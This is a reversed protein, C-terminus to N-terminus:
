AANANAEADNGRCAKLTGDEEVETEAEAIAVSAAAAAAARREAYRAKAVEFAAVLEPSAVLGSPLAGISTSRTGNSQNGFGPDTGRRGGDTGSRPSCSQSGTRPLGVGLGFGAAAVDEAESARACGAAAVEVPWAIPLVQLESVYRVDADKGGNTRTITSVRKTSKRTLVGRQVGGELPWLPRAPECREFSPLQPSPPFAAWAAARSHSGNASSSSPTPPSTSSFVAMGGHTERYAGPPSSVPAVHLRRVEGAGGVMADRHGRSPSTATPTTLQTPRPQYPSAWTTPSTVFTPTGRPTTTRGLHLQPSLQGVDPVDAVTGRTGPGAVAAGGDAPSRGATCAPVTGAGVQSIRNAVDLRLMPVSRASPPAVLVRVHTDQPVAEVTDTAAALGAAAAPIAEPLEPCSPAEQLPMGSPPSARVYRRGRLSQPTASGPRTGPPAAVPTSGCSSRSGDSPSTRKSSNGPPPPPVPGALMLVPVTLRPAATAEGGYGPQTSAVGETTTGSSSADSGVSGLGAHQQAPGFRPPPVGSASPSRQTASGAGSSPAWGSGCKDAHCERTTAAAVAAEAAARAGIAAAEEQARVARREAAERRVEALEMRLREACALRKEQTLFHQECRARMENDEAALEGEVEQLRRRWVEVAAAEVERQQDQERQEAERNVSPVTSVVAAANFRGKLRLDVDGPPVDLVRNPGEEWEVRSGQLRVFKFEVRERPRLAVPHRTVWAGGRWELHVGEPPSWDGLAENSGTLCFREAPAEAVVQVHLRLQAM